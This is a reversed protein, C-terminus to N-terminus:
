TDAGGIIKKAAKKFERRKKKRGRVKILMVM